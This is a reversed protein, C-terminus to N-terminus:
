NINSIKTAIQALMNQLKEVMNDEYECSYYAIGIIEQNAVSIIRFSVNLQNNNESEMFNESTICHVRGLVIYNAKLKQGLKQIQESSLSESNTIELNIQAENVKSRDIVNFKSILYFDDTLKDAAIKCIEGSVPGIKSFNLIAIGNGDFEKKISIDPSSTFLNSITGCGTTILLLVIFSTMKKINM